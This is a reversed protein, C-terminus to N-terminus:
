RSIKMMWKKERSKEEDIMRKRLEDIRDLVYSAKDPEVKVLNLIWLMKKIIDEYTERKNEKLKELRLKTEESLKITTIKTITKKIKWTIVGKNAM